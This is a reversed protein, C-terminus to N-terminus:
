HFVLLIEGQTAPGNNLGEVPCPHVLPSVMVTLEAAEAPIELETEFCFDEAFLLTSDEDYLAVRGPVDRWTIDMLHVEAHTHGQDLALTNGGLQLDRWNNLPTPNDVSAQAVPGPAALDYPVAEVEHGDHGIAGPVGTSLLLALLAVIGSIRPPTWKDGM